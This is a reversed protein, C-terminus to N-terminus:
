KFLDPGSLTRHYHLSPILGLVMASLPYHRVRNTITVGLLARGAGLSQQVLYWRKLAPRPSPLPGLMSNSTAPVLWGMSFYSSSTSTRNYKSAARSTMDQRVSFLSEMQQPPSAGLVLCPAVDNQLDLYNCLAVIVPALSKEEIHAPKLGFYPQGLMLRPNPIRM